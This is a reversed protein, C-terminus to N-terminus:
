FYVFYMVEGRGYGKYYIEVFDAEEEEMLFYFRKEWVKFRIQDIICIRFNMRLFKCM